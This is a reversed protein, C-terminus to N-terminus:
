LIGAIILLLSICIRLIHLVYVNIGKIQKFGLVNEHNIFWKKYRSYNYGNEGLQWALVVSGLILLLFLDIFVTALLVLTYLGFILYSFWHYYCFLKHSRVGMIGWIGTQSINMKDTYQTMIMGQYYGWAFGFCVILLTFILGTM